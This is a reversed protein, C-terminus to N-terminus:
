AGPHAGGPEGPFPGGVRLVVRMKAVLQRGKRPRPLRREDAHRRRRERVPHGRLRRSFHLTLDEGPPAAAFAESVIREEEDGGEPLRQRLKRRLLLVPDAVPALGEPRQDRLHFGRTQQELLPRPMSVNGRSLHAMVVGVGVPVGMLTRTTSSSLLMRFVRAMQRSVSPWWTVVTLLKWSATASADRRVNWMANTSRRRPVASPRSRIGTSSAPLGHSFITTM